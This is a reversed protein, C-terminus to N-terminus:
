IRASEPVDRGFRNGFYENVKRFRAVLPVAAIEEIKLNELYHHFSSTHIHEHTNRAPM